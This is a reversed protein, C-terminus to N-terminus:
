DIKEMDNKLPYAEWATLEDIFPEYIDNLLFIKKGFYFAVAIEAFTNAGIYNKQGKKTNNVVLIAYTNVNAIADFHKKSAMRKYANIGEPKISDWDDEEPLIANYGKQMIPIACKRMDDLFQMSGSVVINKVLWSVKRCIFNTM